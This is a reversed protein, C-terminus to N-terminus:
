PARSDELKRALKVAGASALVYVPFLVTNSVLRMSSFFTAAAAGRLISMWIFNLGFTVTLAILIRAFIMRIILSKPDASQRYTFCAYIFCMLMESIAFGPFYPGMPRALFGVTDSVLGFALAAWPGYLAAVMVNPIYDVSSIRFTETIPIRTYQVLIYKLAVLMAMVTINRLCFVGRPDFFDRISRTMFFGEM